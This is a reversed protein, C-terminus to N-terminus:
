TYKNLVRLNLETVDRNIRQVMQQQNMNEPFKWELKHNGFVQNKIHFQITVNGFTQVIDFYTNGSVNYCGVRISTSDEHMIKCNPDQSLLEEILEDYKERMGGQQKVKEAEKNLDKTFSFIIWALVAIIIVWIM